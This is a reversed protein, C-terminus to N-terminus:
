SNKVGFMTFTGRDINGSGFKFRIGTIASTSSNSGMSSVSVYNGDNDMHAAQSSVMKAGDTGSPKNFWLQMSLSESAAGGIVLSTCDINSDSASNHELTSNGSRRGMHAYAYNSSIYSSGADTSFTLEFPQADTAPHVDSFVFLYANYTSDFVVGGSGHNFDVTATGSSITTTKLHVFGGGGPIAEFAPPSGAGTSTLVQGDTGPGVAAPNGSADYTIIQGDTGAAMKALTIADDAIKATSVASDAIKATSVADDSPTGVNLVDGLILIFDVVDSSTLSSNFVITSGSVTFASTPAQIVGNLSVICHNASQPIVAVSSVTLNYTATSSTTIADCKKFAGVIPGNGIYAV